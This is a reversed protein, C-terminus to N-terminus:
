MWILPYFRNCTPLKEYPYSKNSNIQDNLPSRSRIPLTNFKLAKEFYEDSRNQSMELM